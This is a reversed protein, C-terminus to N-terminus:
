ITGFTSKLPIQSKVFNNLLKVVALYLVGESCATDNSEDVMLM